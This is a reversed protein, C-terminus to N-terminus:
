RPGGPTKGQKDDKQAARLVGRAQRAVVSEPSGAALERLLARAEPSALEGLVEVALQVGAVDLADPPREAKGLRGLVAAIRRRVEAPLDEKLALRLGLEDEPGLRLLEATAQERAKFSRDGLRAVLKRVRGESQLAARLPGRLLRVAEAPTAKLERAAEGTNALGARLRSWAWRLREGGVDWLQVTADHSGSALVRGDPSFALSVVPGVHGDLRAFQKGTFTDYLVVAHRDANTAYTKGDPSLAHAFWGTDQVPPSLTASRLVKGSAGDWVQVTIAQRGGGGVNGVRGDQLFAAHLFRPGRPAPASLERLREGTDARWLGLQGNSSSYLVARGDRSLGLSGYQGISVRAQWLRTGRDADWLRLRGDGGASIIRRGDPSFALGRATALHALWEHTRQGTGLDWLQIYADGAALAQGDPRFALARVGAFHGSFRQRVARRPLDWVAVVGHEDGSALAQGDLSFALTCVPAQHGAPRNLQKGSAVDWIAV